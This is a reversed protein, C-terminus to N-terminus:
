AEMSVRSAWSARAPRNRDSGCQDAGLPSAAASIRAMTLSAKPAGTTSPKAQVSPRTPLAAGVVVHEIEVGIHADDLQDVVGVTRHRGAKRPWLATVLRYLRICGSIRYSSVIHEDTLGIGSMVTIQASAHLPAGIVYQAVVRGFDMRDRIRETM